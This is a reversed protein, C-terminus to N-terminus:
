ALRFKRAGLSIAVAAGLVLICFLVLFLEAYSPAAFAGLALLAAAFATMSFCKAAWRHLQEPDTILAYNITLIHSQGSSRVLKAVGALILAGLLIALYTHEM